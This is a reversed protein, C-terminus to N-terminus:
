IRILFINGVTDIRKSYLCTNLALHRRRQDNTYFVLLFMASTLVSGVGHIIHLYLSVAYNQENAAVIRYIRIEKM